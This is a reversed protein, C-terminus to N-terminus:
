TELCKGGNLASIIVPGTEIPEAQIMGVLATNLATDITPVTELRDYIGRNMKRQIPKTQNPSTLM